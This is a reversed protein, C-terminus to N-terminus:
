ESRLSKVPDSIAAKFAQFSITIFAILLAGSGALVFLWWSLPTRYAFDQLWQHVGYWALPWAVVNALLVLKLFDRSLLSVISAVSAGLVKRVGIEKTRQEATFAALGLLGLCSLFIALFAFYQSLQSVVQESQYLKTYEQDSFQYTFPFKPNVEKYVQELSALAEKTQGVNTRVLITGWKPQKDLRVVLPEITERMSNFHFDELVGIIKGKDM